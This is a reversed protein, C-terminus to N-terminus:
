VCEIHWGVAVCMRWAWLCGGSPTNTVIYSRTLQSCLMIVGHTTVGFGFAGHAMHGMCVFVASAQFRVCFFVYRVASLDTPHFPLCWM